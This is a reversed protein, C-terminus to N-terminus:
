LEFHYVLMSLAAMGATETRLIRKGLSISKAKLEKLYQAEKESIGGEPGILVGIKQVKNHAELIKKLNSDDENEYAILNLDNKEFEKDINKLKVVPKIIPIIGRKSQKAAEESIKQWREIKKNAKKDMEVITREMIVPVINTVGLEVTKQVILDMKTAKPLGQYLTIKVPMESSNTTKEIIELLVQNKDIEQVTAIYELGKGNSLEVKEGIKVRLSKTMHEHNEGSIYVQEDVIQHDEIFFRHM